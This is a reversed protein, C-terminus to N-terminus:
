ATAYFAMTAVGCQNDKNRSMLIYGKLGWSAAWSNRVIWYDAGNLNGYGVIIVAHDLNESSCNPEDYVGGTYSQFSWNSADIAIAIVHQSSADKLADEDGAPVQEVTLVSGAKNAVDYKCTRSSTATYPYSAESDIGKNDIVYQIAANQWGGNCGENGYSWSCDLVNQESFSTLTNGAIAWASECASTGSFAWCSGCQGQDKVPNVAGHDRWDMSDPAAVGSAVHQPYTLAPKTPTNTMTYLSRFEANDMDSFYNLGVTYSHKESNFEAIRKVNQSFIMFRKQYEVSNTYFKHHQVRWTQFTNEAEIHAAMAVALMVALIIISKM